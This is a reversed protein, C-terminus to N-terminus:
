EGYDFMLQDALPSACDYGRFIEAQSPTFFVGCWACRATVGDVIIMHKGM